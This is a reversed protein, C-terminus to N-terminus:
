TRSPEPRLKIPLAGGSILAANTTAWAKQAAPDESQGGSTIIGKGDTIANEVNPNMIMKEDLYIAIPDHNKAATETANKFKEAGEANLEFQIHWESGIGSSSSGYVATASKVENGSVVVNGDKDKFQLLATKGVIASHRTLM